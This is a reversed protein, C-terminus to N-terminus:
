GVARRDHGVPRERAERLGVRRIWSSVEDSDRRAAAEIERKEHDTLRIQIRAVRRDDKPKKRTM